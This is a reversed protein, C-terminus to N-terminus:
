PPGACRSGSRPDSAQGVRRNVAAEDGRDPHQRRRRGVLAADRRRDIARRPHRAPQERRGRDLRRDAAGAARLGRLSDIVKGAALQPEARVGEAVAAAIARCAETESMTIVSTFESM